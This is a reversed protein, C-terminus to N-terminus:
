SPRGMSYYEFGLNRMTAPDLLNRGDIVLPRAMRDRIRNWDLTLFEQWDTVILLADADCAVEYADAGFQLDPFLARTREMAQPDYARIRAGEACLRRIIEIAPAFRIDDTNPKFALGLIGIQKEVLVWLAHRVLDLFRDLRQKNINEVEKLLRFDVGAREALRIFAQIDKPLCFGGFGLGARLFHPGIRPDYGMARTVEDINAGLRDCLDALANAYSIKLALFSNSAHKILESSNITTVVFPPTAPPCQQTHVPCNFKQDLIPQYIERLQQETQEDEVGVVIRDPHLFDLVATGERLFEPNSAVRFPVGATRGYVTLARKLQQGTQVPVTSKEIVLKPSQASEAIVRAVRDIASLDADGTELPPTGVSIFIADGFRVAAAVDGTFSLRGARRNEAVIKDLHPEYIPLRGAALINLKEEDNDACIVEHGIEALCGGTVLGVYGSGIIAIRM